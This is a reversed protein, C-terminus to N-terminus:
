KLLDKFYKPLTTEEATIVDFSFINTETKVDCLLVTEPEIVNFDFGNSSLLKQSYSDMGKMAAPNWLHITKTDNILNAHGSEIWSNAIKQPVKVPRNRNWTETGNSLQTLPKVEHCIATQEIAKRSIMRGAGLLAGGSYTFLKTKGSNQEHMYCKDIGFIDQGYHPKYAEFIDPHILDDSGIQMLYDWESKLAISLAHNLKAGLINEHSCYKFSYKKALKEHDYESGVILADVYDPLVNKLQKYVLETLEVRKWVAILLCIRM